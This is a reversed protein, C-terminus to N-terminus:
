RFRYRAQSKEGRRELAGSVVGDRLDRSATATSVRKVLQVYEKRSFARRGFAGRALTLRTATTSPAPQLETMLEALAQRVAELSFDIFATASGARDCAGLVRYYEAQRARIVSEFPVWEFVPHWRVLVVHQWLRGVRGNGDSFPHILELEYHAIAARVPVPEESTRLWALLDGVLEPVRKAPPAVHVVRTGEVVGVGKARFRGADDALGRMLLAHAALLDKTKTPDLRSAREYAAIANQVELVDRKPGVVRRDDMIASAQAEDLTNGEIALSAVLTRIRNSRRLRPQPAPRALGEWQGVLRMIEGLAGLATKTIEFPPAYM